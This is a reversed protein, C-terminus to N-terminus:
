TGIGALANSDLGDRPRETPDPFLTQGDLFDCEADHWHRTVAVRDDLVLTQRGQTGFQPWVPLGTGNPDGTKAFTTWYGAMRASLRDEADTFAYDGEGFGELLDPDHWLIPDDLFHAARLLALFESNEYTHSYLYRWVPGSSAAALRRMPCGYIGDTFAAVASWLKSGYAAPPYLRRVVHGNPDGVLNNTDRVWDSTKYHVGGVVFDWFWFAAEERNSGVLLPVTHTQVAILTRPAAPLVEGGVWPSLDLFGGAVVLDSASVGRLCALVDREASCGVRDSLDSGLQEAEDITGLGNLAWYSETQLAARQFLGAALPSAVLATADFSGASEGFLTVNGADGGFAEINARVWKLAAIQDLMGYEGSSGGGEASLAPHGAFGFVGLRYALTVVIVDRAVFASADEYPWFGSNSGGHLHVMVPLDTGASASSPAFVNLYLCDESGVTETDSMLQICHPGFESADRVDSWPAASVPARWRRPGVPPAAYPIGRWEHAKGNSIGRVVGSATSVQLPDSARANPTLLTLSLLALGALSCFRLRATRRSM